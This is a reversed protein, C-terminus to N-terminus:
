ILFSKFCFYPIFDSILNHSKGFVFEIKFHYIVQHGESNGQQSELLGLRQVASPTISWDTTDIILCVGVLASKLCSINLQFMKSATSKHHGFLAFNLRVAVLSVERNASSVSNGVKVLASEIEVFNVQSVTTRAVDLVVSGGVRWNHASASTFLERRNTREITVSEFVFANQVAGLLNGTGFSRASARAVARLNVSRNASRISSGVIVVTHNITDSDPFERVAFAIGDGPSALKARLGKHRSTSSVSNSVSVEAFHLAVSSFKITETDAFLFFLFIFVAVEAWINESRDTSGISNLIVVFALAEAFTSAFFIAVSTTWLFLRTGSTGTHEGGDATFFSDGVIILAVQIASLILEQFLSRAIESQVLGNRLCISVVTLEFLKESLVLAIESLNISKQVKFM